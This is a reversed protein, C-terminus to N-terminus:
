LFSIYLIYVSFHGGHCTNVPSIQSYIEVLQQKAFEVERKTPQILFDQCKAVVKATLYVWYKRDTKHGNVRRLQTKTNDSYLTQQFTDKSFNRFLLCFWSDTVSPISEISTWLSQKNVAIKRYLYFLFVQFTSLLPDIFTNWIFDFKKSFIYVVLFVDGWQSFFDADKSSTFLTSLRGEVLLKLVSKLIAMIHFSLHAIVCLAEDLDISVIPCWKLTNTTNM